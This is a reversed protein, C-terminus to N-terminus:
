AAATRAPLLPQQACAQNLGTPLLHLWTNANAHSRGWLPGQVDPIPHQQVDTLIVLWKDAMTPVPSTDYTRYRRHTRPQGAITHDEMYALFAREFPPLLATFEHPTLGTMARVRGVRQTVEDDSPM